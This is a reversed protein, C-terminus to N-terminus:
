LGQSWNFVRSWLSHEIENSGARSGKHLTARVNVMSLDVISKACELVCHVDM